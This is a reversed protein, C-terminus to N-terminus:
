FSRNLVMSEVNKSALSGHKTYIRNRRAPLATEILGSVLTRANSVYTNLVDNETKSLLLLRKVDRFLGNLRSRLPEEIEVTIRYFDASGEANSLICRAIAIRQKELELFTDTITGSVETEKQFALWDRILVSEYMRKQCVHLSSLVGTEHLLIEELQEAYSDTYEM